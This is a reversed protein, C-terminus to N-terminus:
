REDLYSNSNKEVQSDKELASKLTEKFSAEETNEKKYNKPNQTNKKFLDNYCNKSKDVKEVRM